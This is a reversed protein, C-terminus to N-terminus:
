AAPELDPLDEDDSDDDDADMGGMGGGMKAMMEEMDMGGIGGVGGMGGDFGSFNYQNPDFKDPTEDEEDEDVWKNWDCKIHTLHRGSDKTLRPWHGTEQKMVVVFINRASVSVKSDPVNIKDNMDLDLEFVQQPEPGAKGKFTLKGVGDPGETLNITQDKVDQIDLTIYLKDKRQAWLVTPIPM